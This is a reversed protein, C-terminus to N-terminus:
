EKKAVKSGRFWVRIDPIFRNPTAKMYDSYGPITKLCREELLTGMYTFVEMTIMHGLRTATYVTPGFINFVLIAFFHPFRCSLSLISQTESDISAPFRSGKNKKWEKLLGFCFVDDPSMDALSWVWLVLALISISMWIFSAFPFKVEFIMKDDAQFFWSMMFLLISTVLNFLIREYFVYNRWMTQMAEKFWMRSMTMHQIIFPLYLMFNFLVKETTTVKRGLYNQLKFCGGDMVTPSGFIRIGTPFLGSQTFALISIVAVIKQVLSVRVLTRDDIPIFGFDKM